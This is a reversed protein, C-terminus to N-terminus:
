GFKVIIRVSLCLLVVKSKIARKGIVISPLDFSFQLQCSKVTDINNTSFLKM